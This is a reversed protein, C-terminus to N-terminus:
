GALTLAWGETNKPFVSLASSLTSGTTAVDDFLIIKSPPIIDQGLCFVSHVNQRRLTKNKLQSQPPSSFSRLLIDTSYPINILPSLASVLLESQNFGRWRSRAPHLPIPILTFASQQWYQLLHPYGTKLGTVVLSALDPVLDSIYKFKLDNIASKFPGRYHFLSLTGDFGRPYRPKVPQYIFKARCQPCFYTGLRGCSYCYRPYLLDLIFSM